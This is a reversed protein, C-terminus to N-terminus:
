KKKFYRPNELDGKEDRLDYRLMVEVTGSQYQRVDSLTIDYSVGAGLKRNFQFFLLADISEGVNNGGVRYTLGAMLKRLYRVSFNIDADLPAHDVYKVLANPMLEVQDSLEITAGVAAYRHPFNLATLATAKNFGIENPYIQPVSLGFYFIDKYTIYMGVGVNAVYKDAFEGDSLSPDNLPNTVTIVNEDNFNIGMYEMSGQLGLRLGIEQTLRIDYSYAGSILWNNTIGINYHSVTGGVGARQRMIPTHFSFVQSSPAGEFGLWQSRHLGMVSGTNRSGVYAPNYLQHNFMFFTYHLDQQAVLTLSFLGIILTLISKM